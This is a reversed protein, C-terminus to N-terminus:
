GVSTGSHADARGAPTRAEAPRLQRHAASWYVVVGGVCVLSIISGYALSWPAGVVDAVMGTIPGGIPTSGLFAVAQLAMLRSRMDSPSEQQTLANAATVFGAGGIGLPISVLFALWITPAFAMGIGAIGLLVINGMFWRLSVRRLRATLLSGTLSGISMVALVWGFAEDGGWQEDALKPLSVTYNFAFTSVVVLTVFVVTMDRRSGVFRLADRVPQGGKARKPMRYMERTRIAVLSLIIAGFSVGNAIFCWGTGIVSVLVAALAPGLIRSGTMVATNLSTANPIDQPEVLETVLARRAPNDFANIVGLVLSLGYILPLNIVGSLDLVGLTLAQIALGSQTIIAMRRRDVGDALAGAWAGLLLMPLFQFAVSIGVATAEGTLRYVLLSMATLQLWTGVNSIALGGFFLRANRNRLSRFTASM